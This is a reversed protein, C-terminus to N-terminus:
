GVVGLESEILMKDIKKCLERECAPCRYEYKVPFGGFILQSRSPELSCDKKKQKCRACTIM